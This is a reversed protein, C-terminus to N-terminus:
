VSFVALFVPSCFSFFLRLLQFIITGNSIQIFSKFIVHFFDRRFYSWFITASGSFVNSASAILHLSSICLWSIEFFTVSLQTSTIM